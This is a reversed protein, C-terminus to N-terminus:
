ATAGAGSTRSRKRRRHLARRALAGEGLVSATEDRLRAAEDASGDAEAIVLFGAGAPMGVPFSAGAAELTGGDLYEM